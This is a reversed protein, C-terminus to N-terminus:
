KELEVETFLVEEKVEYEKDINDPVYYFERELHEDLEITVFYNKEQKNLKYEYALEAFTDEIDVLDEEFHRTYTGLTIPLKKADIFEEKNLPMLELSSYEYDNKLSEKYITLLQLTNNHKKLTVEYLDKDGRFRFGFTLTTVKDSIIEYDILKSDNEYCMKTIKNQVEVPISKVFKAIERAITPEASLMAILTPEFEKVLLPTKM